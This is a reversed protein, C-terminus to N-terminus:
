VSPANGKSPICQSERIRKYSLVNAHISPLQEFNDKKLGAKRICSYILGHIYKDMLKWHGSDEVLSYWKVRRNKRGLIYKEIEKIFLKIEYIKESELSVACVKRLCERQLFRPIILAREYKEPDMCRRGAFHKLGLWNVGDVLRAVQTKNPALCLGLEGIASELMSLKVSAEEFDRCIIIIDDIYRFYGQDENFYNDVRRVYLEALISSISLGQPLGTISFTDFTSLFNNSRVRLGESWGQLLNFLEPRMGLMRCLDISRDRPISDYFRLIDTKIIVADGSKDILSGFRKVCSIPSQASLDVGQDVALRRIENYLLRFVIQDRLRPIFLSRVVGNAKMKEIRLLPGFRYAIQENIVMLKRHIENISNQLNGEFVITSVGDVGIPLSKARDLYKKSKLEDYVSFIDNKTFIEFM